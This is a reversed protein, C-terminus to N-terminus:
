KDEMSIEEEVKKKASFEHKQACNSKTIYSRFIGINEAIMQMKKKQKKKNVCALRKKKRDMEIQSIHFLETEAAFSNCIGKGQPCLIRGRIKGISYRARALWRWRAM